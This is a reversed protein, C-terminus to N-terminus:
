AMQENIINRKIEAVFYNKIESINNQRFQQQDNLNQYINTTEIFDCEVM